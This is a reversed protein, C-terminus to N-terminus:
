RRRVHSVYKCDSWFQCWKESCKWTGVGNAVFVGAKTADIANSLREMLVDLDEQERTTEQTVMYPKAHPSPPIVIHDLAMGDAIKWDNRAADLMAYMSLQPSDDAANENPKRTTTKLDRIMKGGESTRTMLDVIGSIRVNTGKPEVVLKEEVLIPDLYPAVREVYHRAMKVARDKDFGIEKKPDPATSVAVGEKKERDFSTAALDGAEDLSPLAERLVVSKLAKPSEKRADMQRRHGTETVHHVARGRIMASSAPMWEKEEEERRYAEGCLILKNLKSYSWREKDV